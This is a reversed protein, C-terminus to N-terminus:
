GEDAFRAVSKWTQGDASKLLRAAGDYSSHASGERFSCYWHDKWRFLDTFANHPAADWIRDSRVLRLDPSKQGREKSQAAARPAPLLALALLMAGCTMRSPRSKM